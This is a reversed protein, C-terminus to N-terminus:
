LHLSVRTSVEQQLSSGRGFRRVLLLHRRSNGREVKVRPMILRVVGRIQAEHFLQAIPRGRHDQLLYLQLFNFSRLCFLPFISRVCFWWLIAVIVKDVPVGLKELLLCFM